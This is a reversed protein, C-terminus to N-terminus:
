QHFGCITAQKTLTGATFGGILTIASGRDLKIGITYNYGCTTSLATLTQLRLETLRVNAGGVVVQIYANTNDSTVDKTLSIHAHTLIFDKDLPTTYLTANSTTTNGGTKVLDTFKSGVEIVPQIYNQSQNIPEALDLLERANFLVSGKRALVM